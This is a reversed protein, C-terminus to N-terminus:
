RVGPSCPDPSRFAPHVRDLTLYVSRKVQELGVADDVRLVQSKKTDMELFVDQGARVDLTLGDKQCQGEKLEPKPGVAFCHPGPPVALSFATAGRDISWVLPVADGFFYARGSQQERRFVHLRGPLGREHAILLAEAEPNRVPEWASDTADEVVFPRNELRPHLVYRRRPVIAMVVAKDRAHVRGMSGVYRADITYAGPAVWWTGGAARTWTAEDLASLSVGEEVTVLGKCGALAPPDPAQASAREQAVGSGPALMVIWCLSAVFSLFRDQWQPNAFARRM